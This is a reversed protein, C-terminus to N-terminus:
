AMHERRMRGSFVFLIQLATLFYLLISLPVIMRNVSYLLLIFLIINKITSINNNTSSMCHFSLLIM